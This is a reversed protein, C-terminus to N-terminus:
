LRLLRWFAVLLDRFPRRLSVGWPQRDEMPRKKKGVNKQLRVRNAHVCSSQFEDLYIELFQPAFVEFAFELVLLGDAGLLYDAGCGAAVFGSEEQALRSKIV